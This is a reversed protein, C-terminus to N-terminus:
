PNNLVGDLFDGTYITQGQSNIYSHATLNYIKPWEANLEPYYYNSELGLAEAAAGQLYLQSRWDTTQVKVIIDDVVEVYQKQKYLLDILNAHYQVELKALDAQLDEISTQITNYAGELGTLDSYYGAVTLKNELEGIINKDFSQTTELNDISKVLEDNQQVVSNRQVEVGQRQALVAAAQNNLEAQKVPDTERRAQNILDAYRNNLYTITGELQAILANNSEIKDESYNISDSVNNYDQTYRELQM